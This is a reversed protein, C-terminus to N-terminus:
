RRTSKRSPTVSAPIRRSPKGAPTATSLPAPQAVPRHAVPSHAVPRLELGLSGALASATSLRVDRNEDLWRCLVGYHIGAKKAVSYRTEQGSSILGEVTTRLTSDITPM